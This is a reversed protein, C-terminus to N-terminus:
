KTKSNLVDEIWPENGIQNKLFSATWNKQIAFSTLKDIVNNAKRFVTRETTNIEKSIEKSTNKQVFKLVAIKRDDDNLSDLLTEIIVYLNLLKNKREGMDILRDIDKYTALYSNGYINYPSIISAKNEIIKDIIGIINPLSKYIELLAKIYNKLEEFEDINSNERTTKVFNTTKPTFNCNLINNKRKKDRNDIKNTKIVKATEQMSNM